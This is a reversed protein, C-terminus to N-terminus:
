TPQEDGLLGLIARLLESHERQGQSLEGVAGTLHESTGAFRDLGRGIRHVDSELDSIRQEHTTTM